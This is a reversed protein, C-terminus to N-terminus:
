YLNGYDLDNVNTKGCLGMTVKLEKTLIEIVKEVGRKGDAGLGYMYPRGMFVGKAGLSIAKVIDQGSRVGGDFFVEIDKGVKDVVKNLAMISSSTGDLQRGGHNSVIIGDVGINKAIEADQEDLIGKIVLPGKWVKKIWEVYDWSLEQDFQGNTWSIISSLDSVGKAHGLINGFTRNKTKLMRLCWSPRKLLQILHKLTPRPPATLGNRIDQHRQALIQLDMTLVLAYCNARKARSIIDKVFDKDKMVYLQFWFPAKTNDAVQEISCISMTSLLYPIDFKECIQAVLIEGDPYLMGGMGCPSFGFPRSYMKNLFVNKFKYKSINIGVRQRLKIKQFDEENSKYTSQTYSGSDVYDYFMKPLRKKALIKLDNIELINKM